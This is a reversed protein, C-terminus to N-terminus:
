YVSVANDPLAEPEIIEAIIGGFERIMPLAYGDVGPVYGTTYLMRSDLDAQMDAQLGEVTSKNLKVNGEDDVEGTFDLIQFKIM